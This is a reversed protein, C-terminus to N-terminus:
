RWHHHGVVRITDHGVIMGGTAMARLTVMGDGPEISSTLISCVLDPRGDRNVDKVHCHFREGKGVLKVKSGNLSITAPDVTTADFSPGSLIAVPIAGFSKLHVVNPFVGPRVDIGVIQAGDTTVLAIPNALNNLDGQTQVQPVGTPPVTVTLLRPTSQAEILTLPQSSLFDPAVQIEIRTSPDFTATGAISLVDHAGDAAVELVLKGGNSQYDGNITLTGPSAGPSVTGGNNVVIGNITGDGSLTGTANITVNGNVTGSARVTLTGNVTADGSLAGGARVLQVGGVGITSSAIIAGGAESIVAGLPGVTIEDSQIQGNNSVTLTATGGDIDQETVPDRRLGVSVRTPASILSNTGSVTVTGTSGPNRAIILVGAAASTAVDVGNLLVSGGDLVHLAGSGQHAVVAGVGLSANTGDLSSVFTATPDSPGTIEIKSGAGVIRISGSAGPHLGSNLLAGPNSGGAILTQAGGSVDLIGSGLLGVNLINRNNNPPLPGTINLVSTSGSVSLSASGTALNGLTATSASLLGGTSLALGGRGASVQDAEVVGGNTVSVQGTGGTGAPDTSFGLGVSLSQGADVYSGAGSVDLLGSSGTFRGVVLTAGAPNTVKGGNTVVLSGVGGRGVQISSNPGTLTIESGAGTVVASGVMPGIDSTDRGINFYSPWANAAGDMLVKGGDSVRLTGIAPPGTPPTPGAAQGLTLGNSAAFGGFGTGVEFGVYRVLSGAGTVVLSGSGGSRGITSFPATLNGGNQIVLSGVSGDVGVTVRHPFTATTGDITFRGTGNAGVGVLTANAGTPPATATLQDPASIALSGTDNNGIFMSSPSPLAGNIFNGTPSVVISARSPPPLMAGGSLLALMVALVKIWLPRNTM